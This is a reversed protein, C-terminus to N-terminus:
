LTGTFARHQLNAFSGDLQIAQRQLARRQHEIREAIAAFKQQEPLKPLPMPVLVLKSKAINKMSGSTGSSRKSLESRFSANKFLEWLFLKNAKIDPALQMKWLKDPLVMNKPTEWVYATAAVLDTTNARSFLLDGEEVVADSSPKFGPPAPKSEEPRYIKQTVASVKLIRYPSTSEDPCKINKGGIFDSFVDVVRVVPWDKPNTVPDGFMDLFVSQLLQDLKAIAERRKARLVDAKDLIAAIRRQEPLSPLPLRVEEMTAKSVEKFTAGNGLSQLYEKNAKLWYYLYDASVREPDPVFSKFGQNTCMPVRNIAVHGIPARSSFLVSGAPMVKASCSRYGAETLTQPTSEIYKSDLSSLDKPTAWAIEGGWYESVATKPTAGSVIECCDGLRVLPAHSM